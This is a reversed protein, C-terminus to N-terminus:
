KQITKMPFLQSGVGITEIRRGKGCIESVERHWLPLIKPKKIFPTGGLLSFSDFDLGLMVYSWFALTAILNGDAGTADQYSLTQNQQYDFTLEEKTNLLTTNLTSGYIPRQSQIQFDCTYTTGQNSKFIFNLSCDIKEHPALKLNSWQQGAMFSEVKKKFDEYVSKDTGSIQQTNIQVRCNFEQSFSNIWCCCLIFLVSLGYRM